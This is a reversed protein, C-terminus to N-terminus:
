GRTGGVWCCLLRTSHEAPGLFLLLYGVSKSSRRLPLPLFNGTTEPELIPLGGLIGM